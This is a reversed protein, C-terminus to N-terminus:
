DGARYFTIASSGYRRSEGGEPLPRRSDHEVSLISAFPTSLWVRVVEEAETGSYPPDAFALDYAAAPLAKAFRLADARHVVVADGAELLAVNREIADLSKRDKEVLDASAAGRSVTELGLAGSGAYLDLVRAGPIEHQLISM